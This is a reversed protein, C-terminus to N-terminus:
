SVMLKNMKRIPVNLFSNKLVHNLGGKSMSRVRICQEHPWYNHYFQWQTNTHGLRSRALANRNWRKKVHSSMWPQQWASILVHKCQKNGTTTVHRPWTTIVKNCPQHHYCVQQLNHSVIRYNNNKVISYNNWCALSACATRIFLDSRAQRWWSTLLKNRASSILSTPVVQQLDTPRM